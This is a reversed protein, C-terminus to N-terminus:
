AVSLLHFYLMKGRLCALGLNVSAVVVHQVVEVLEPLSAEFCVGADDLYDPDCSKEILEVNWTCPRFPSPDAGAGSSAMTCGWTAYMTWNM